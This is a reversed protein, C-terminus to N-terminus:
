VATFYLRSTTRSTVRPACVFARPVVRVKVVLLSSSIPALYPLSLARVKVLVATAGANYLGMVEADVCLAVVPKTFGGAVVQEITEEGTAYLLNKTEVVVADVARVTGDVSDKDSVGGHRASGRRSAAMGAQAGRASLVSGARSMDRSIKGSEGLKNAASVGGTAM